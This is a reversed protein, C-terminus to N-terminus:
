KLKLLYVIFNPAIMCSVNRSAIDLFVNTPKAIKEDIMMTM